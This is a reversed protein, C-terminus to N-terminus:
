SLKHQRWNLTFVDFPKATPNGEFPIAFYEGRLYSANVTIRLFGADHENYSQLTLGRMATNFPVQIAKGHEDTQIKHIARSSHAYGGAGAVIYPIEQGSKLARTFRQYCHVHGSFVIDPLRNTVRSARELAMGIDPYGGHTKDLSFPPHHVAIILCKDTPANRLQEELWRQQKNAGRGDLLGDVNSYLGIITTFPAELTWYVYPQTMTERYPFIFRAQSDCFNTMFGTLTPETDPADGKQVHTDGDHNGPIAFIPAPYHQYPEYFQQPYQSSEGNFYVIDGLHYFFIPKEPDPAYQIQAEMYEAITTQMVSGDNIGGTDGVTHFVLQGAQEIKQDIGPLIVDLPLTLHTTNAVPPAIFHPNQKAYEIPNGFDRRKKHFTRAYM